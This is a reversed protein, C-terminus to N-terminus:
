SGPLWGDEVLSETLATVAPVVFPVDVGHGLHREYLLHARVAAAEPWAVRRGGHTGRDRGAQDLAFFLTRDVPKLWLFDATRLSGAGDRASELMATMVTSVYAHKEVAHRVTPHDGHRRLVKDELGALSVRHPRRGGGEVFTEGMRDLLTDVLRRDGAAGAALTAFLARILAPLADPSDPWRPGLQMIFGGHAAARDLTFAQLGAVAPDDADPVATVVTGQADLLARFGVALSLPTDPLRWPGENFPRSLLDDPVPRVRPWIRANRRKLRLLSWDKRRWRRQRLGVVLFIAAIVAVGTAATGRVPHGARTALDWFDGFSVKGPDMHRLQDRWRLLVQGRPSDVGAMSALATAEWQFLSLAASVIPRHAVFWLAVVLLAIGALALLWNTVGDDASGRGAHSQAM